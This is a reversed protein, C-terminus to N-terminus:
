IKNNVSSDHGTAHPLGGKDASEAKDTLAPALWGKRIFFLLMAISIVAMTVIVLPYGWYWNLEPMNWPSRETNFNMGYLGAIFTLPIFITSIITLVKMVESMRQSVSSLYLDMLDAGLERYTEVFDIIRVAHDYCDRLHLRTENGILPMEDRVLTNMAERLPWVARRLTLLERKTEHIRKVANTSPRLLIEDELDEMREGLMELVPFYSDIIADILTYALYDAGTGRIRSAAKRIRVRVPEFPDGPRDEQFTLVFKAGVFLSVQETEISHNMLVTRAVIFLHNDYQEIKARQHMHVADELALSHLALLDGLQKVVQADGVGEVDIWTVPWRDLIERLQSVDTIGQELYETPSYAMVRLVPKKAAPDVM